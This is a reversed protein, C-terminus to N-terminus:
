NEITKNEALQWLTQFNVGSSYVFNIKIFPFVSPPYFYAAAQYFCGPSLPAGFSLFIGM